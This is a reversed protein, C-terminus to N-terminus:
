ELVSVSILDNFKKGSDLRMFSREFFIIAIEFGECGLPFHCSVELFKDGFGSLLKHLYECTQIFKIILSETSRVKTREFFVSPSFDTGSIV